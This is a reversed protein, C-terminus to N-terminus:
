HLERATRPQAPLGCVGGGFRKPQAARQPRAFTTRFDIPIYRDAQASVAHLRACPANAAQTSCCRFVFLFGGTPPPNLRPTSPLSSSRVGRKLEGGAVRPSGPPVLGAGITLLAYRGAEASSNIYIVSLSFAARDVGDGGPAAGVDAKM